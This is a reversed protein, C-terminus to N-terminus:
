LALPQHTLWVQMCRPAPPQLTGSATCAVEALAGVHARSHCSAGQMGGGERACTSRTLQGKPLARCPGGPGISLRWRGAAMRLMLCVWAPSLACVPLPGRLRGLSDEQRSHKRLSWMTHDGGQNTIWRNADRWGTREGVGGGESLQIGKFLARAQVVCMSRGRGRLGTSPKNGQLLVRPHFHQQATSVVIGLVGDSGRLQLHPGPIDSSSLTRCHATCVIISM